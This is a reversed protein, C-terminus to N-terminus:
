FTLFNFNSSKTNNKLINNIYMDNSNNKSTKFNILKTYNSSNLSKLKSCNKFSDFISDFYKIKTFKYYKLFIRYLNNTLTNLNLKKRIFNYQKTLEDAIQKQSNNNKYLSLNKNFDFNNIDKNISRKDLIDTVNIKKTLFATSKLYKLDKMNNLLEKKKNNISTFFFSKQNNLIKFKSDSEINKIKRLKINTYNFTKNIFEKLEKKKITEELKNNIFNLLANNTNINKKYKHIGEISTSPIKIHINKSININTLKKYNLVKDCNKINIIAEKSM